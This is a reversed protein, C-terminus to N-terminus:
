IDIVTYGYKRYAKRRLQSHREFWECSKHAGLCGCGRDDFDVVWFDDKTQGNGLNRRSGRGIKQIVDIVAKGGAANIVTAVEAIDIGQRLIPTSVLTPVAGRKLKDLAADLEEASSEDNVAVCFLAGIRRVLEAQHEKTRVFVIRPAPYEGILRLVKQNRLFNNAIAESEWSTYGDGTAVPKNEHAIMRLRCKSIVGDREAQQPSYKHIAGGLAGVIYLGKRDARDLPTASFGYRREANLCRMLTTWLAQAAVMHAEDVLVVKFTALEAETFLKLSDDTSVIVRREKEKYGGGLRGARLGFKQCRTHLDKVLKISSTIILVRATTFSAAALFAILDGKGSGTCHQVLGRPTKYIIELAQRQHARPEWGPFSYVENPTLTSSRSTVFVEFGQARAAAVLRTTLGAPFMRGARLLSRVRKKGKAGSESFSLYTRLFQNETASARTVKSWAFGFQIDV